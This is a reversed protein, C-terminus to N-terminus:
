LGSYRSTLRCDISSHMSVLTVSFFFYSIIAITSKYVYTNGHRYYHLMEMKAIEISISYYVSQVYSAHWKKMRKKQMRFSNGQLCIATLLLHLLYAEM